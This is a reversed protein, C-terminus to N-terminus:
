IRALEGQASLLHLDAGEDELWALRAACEEGRGLAALQLAV